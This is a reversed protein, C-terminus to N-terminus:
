PFGPQRNPKRSERFINKLITLVCWRINASRHAYCPYGLSRSTKDEAPRQSKKLTVNCRTDASVAGGRDDDAWVFVGADSGPNQM